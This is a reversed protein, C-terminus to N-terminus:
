EEVETDAMENGKCKSEFVEITKTIKVVECGEPKDDMLRLQITYAKSNIAGVGETSWGFGGSYEMFFRKWKRSSWGDFLVEPLSSRLARIREIRNEDSTFVTIEVVHAYNSVSFYAEDPLAELRKTYSDIVQWKQTLEELTPASGINKM